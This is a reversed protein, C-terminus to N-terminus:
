VHMFSYIELNFIFLYIKFLGTEEAKWIFYTIALTVSFSSLNELLLGKGGLFGESCFAKSCTRLALCERSRSFSCSENIFSPSKM